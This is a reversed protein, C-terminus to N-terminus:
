LSPRHPNPWRHRKFCIHLTRPHPLGWAAISNWPFRFQVWGSLLTAQWDDRFSTTRGQDYLCFLSVTQLM